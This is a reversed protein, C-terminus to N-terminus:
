SARLKCPLGEISLHQDIHSDSSAIPIHMILISLFANLVPVAAEMKVIIPINLLAVLPVLSVAVFSHCTRVVRSMVATLERHKLVAEVMLPLLADLKSAPDHEVLAANHPPIVAGDHLPWIWLWNSRAGCGVQKGHCM